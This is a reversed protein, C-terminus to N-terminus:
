VWYAPIQVHFHLCGENFSHHLCVPKKDPRPYKENIKKVIADAQEPTFLFVTVADGRVENRFDVARGAPHVGSEGEVPDTVRTVVAERGCENALEEFYECVEKLKAPRQKYQEEMHAQKFKM